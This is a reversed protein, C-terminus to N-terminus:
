SGFSGGCPMNIVVIERRLEPAIRHCQRSPRSRPADAEGAARLHVFRVM